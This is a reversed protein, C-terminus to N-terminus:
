RIGTDCRIAIATYGIPGVTTSVPSCRPLTSEGKAGVMYNGPPLSLQFMGHADSLVTAIIHTPDSIRSISVTVQLPRDACRPDPPNQEVPCTPGALVTGKIGSHYETFGGGGGGLVPTTTAFPCVFECTLGTRGVYSGDPCQMADASCAVPGPVHAPQVSFYFVGAAVFSLFILALVGKGVAAKDTISSNM